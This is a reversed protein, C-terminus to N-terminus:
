CVSIHVKTKREMDEKKNLKYSLSNEKLSDKANNENEIM